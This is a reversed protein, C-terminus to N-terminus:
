PSEKMNRSEQEQAIHGRVTRAAWVAAGSIIVNILGIADRGILAGGFIVSAVTALLLALHAFFPIYYGYLKMHYMGLTSLLTFSLLGLLVFLQAVANHYAFIATMFMVSLAIFVHLGWCIRMIWLRPASYGKIPGSNVGFLCLAAENQSAKQSAMQSVPSVGTTLKRTEPAYYASLWRSYLYRILKGHYQALSAKYEPAPCFLGAGDGL